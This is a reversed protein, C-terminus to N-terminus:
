VSQSLQIKRGVWHFCFLRLHCVQGRHAVWSLHKWSINVRANLPFLPELDIVFHCIAVFM